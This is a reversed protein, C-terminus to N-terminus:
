LTRAASILPNILKKGNHVYDQNQLGRADRKTQDLSANFM